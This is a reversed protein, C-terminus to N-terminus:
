DVEQLNTQTFFFFFLISRIFKNTPLYLGMYNLTITCYFDNKLRGNVQLM